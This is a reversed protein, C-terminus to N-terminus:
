RAVVALDLRFLRMRATALGAALAQHAKERRQAIAIGLKSKPDVSFDTALVDYDRAAGLLDSLFKLEVGLGEFKPHVILPSFLSFAARLRRIAIRSQHVGEVADKGAFAPENLMFDHLCTRGIALFATLASM